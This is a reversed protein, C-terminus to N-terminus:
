KDYNEGNTQAAVITRDAFRWDASNNTTQSTLHPKGCCGARRSFGDVNNLLGSSREISKFQMFAGHATASRARLAAIGAISAFEFTSRRRCWHQHPGDSSNRIFRFTAFAM